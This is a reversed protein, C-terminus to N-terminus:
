RGAMKITYEEDWGMYCDLMINGDQGISERINRVLEENKKMGVKGDAPGYPMAIKCDKFGMKKHREIDNGTPYVSIKDRVKGGLLKYVPYGTIKGVVDWLATDIASIADITCGKRGYDISARYMVDWHYEIDFPDKGLLFKEFVDNVISATFQKGGGAWGLGYYGEDTTIRVITTVMSVMWSSRKSRYEEYKSVANAVMTDVLWSSGMPFSMAEVKTIKAM